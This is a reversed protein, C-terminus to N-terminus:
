NINTNTHIKSKEIDNNDGKSPGFGFGTVLKKEPGTALWPLSWVSRCLGVRLLQAKEWSRGVLGMLRRKKGKAHMCCDLGRVAQKGKQIKKRERTLGDTPERKGLHSTGGWSGIKGRHSVLGHGEVYSLWLM